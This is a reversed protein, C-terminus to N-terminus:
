KINDYKRIYVESKLNPIKFVIKIYRLKFIQPTHSAYLDFQGYWIMTENIKTYSFDKFSCFLSKFTYTHQSNM